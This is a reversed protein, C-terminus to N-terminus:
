SGAVLAPAGNSAAAGPMSTQAAVICGLGAEKAATLEETMWAADQTPNTVKGANDGLSTIPPGARVGRWPLRELVAQWITHRTDFELTRRDVGNVDEVDQSVLLQRLADTRDRDVRYRWTREDLHEGHLLPVAREHAM